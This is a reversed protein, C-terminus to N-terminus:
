LRTTCTMAAAATAAAAYMKPASAMRSNSCLNLLWGAAAGRMRFSDAPFQRCSRQARLTHWWRASCGAQLLRCFSGARGPHMEARCGSAAPGAGQAALRGSGEAAGAAAASGPATAPTAAAGGAQRLHRATPRQHALGQARSAPTGTASGCAMAWPRWRRSVTGRGPQMDISGCIKTNNNRPCLRQGVGRSRTKCGMHTDANSSGSLVWLSM